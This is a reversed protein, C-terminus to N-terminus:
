KLGMPNDVEILRIVRETQATDKFIRLAEGSESTQPNLLVAIIQWLEGSQTSVYQKEKFRYAARTKITLTAGDTQLGNLLVRYERNKPDVISYTFAKGRDATTKPRRIYYKGSLFEEDKIAMFESFFDM